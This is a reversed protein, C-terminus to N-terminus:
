LGTGVDVADGALHVGGKVDGGHLTVSIEAAEEEVKTGVGEGLILVLLAGLVKGELLAVDLDDLEQLLPVEM